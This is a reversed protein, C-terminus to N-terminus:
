RNVYQKADELKLSLIQSIGDDGMTIGYLINSKEMTARNHTIVIFQSQKSLKGIIDAFRISNAEDLAADVEDLVVFPAPNNAIIACILAIATLAKEGGSLMSISKLKKGPPTSFIDVGAIEDNSTKIYKKINHSMLEDEYEEESKVEDQTDKKILKLEAKGGNFLFQFFEKFKENIKQFSMNFKKVIEKNLDDILNILNDSAKKLDETQQTLFDYREKVEKYENKVLPDIGGILSLQHKLRHIEEYLNKTSDQKKTYDWNGVQILFDEGIESIIEQEIDSLRTDIKAMEVRFNNRENTLTNLNIQKEQLSKQIEWIMSKEQSERSALTQMQGSIQSIQEDIEMIQKEIKSIKDALDGEDGKRSNWYQSLPKLYSKINELFIKIKQKIEAVNDIDLINKEVQEINQNIRKYIDEVIAVPISEQQTKQRNQFQKNKLVILENQLQNKKDMLQQYQKQIQSLKKSHNEQKTYSFMKEQLTSIEKELKEIKKNLEEEEKKVKVYEQKLNYMEQGYYHYQADRLRNEIETKKELNKVQRSLSRLRPLIENVQIQVEELNRFTNELKRIAENKKIQLPKVGAAEEFFDKREQPSFSLIEDVMGQGIVSYTRSSLNIEALLLQIDHLRVNQSNFLYESKGDRHLRRTIVFESMDKIMSIESDPTIDISNDTNDFYLSVEAMGLRSAKDTGSFIVDTSKEGRLSKISQEGMVWRVAEAINSKGSGNPGVIATIGQGFELVTKKAFSKFGNIEIKKLYM